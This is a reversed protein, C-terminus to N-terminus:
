STRGPLSLDEAASGGVLTTVDEGSITVSSEAEPVVASDTRSAFGDMM